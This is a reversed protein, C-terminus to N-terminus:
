GPQATQELARGPCITALRTINRDQLVFRPKAVDGDGGFVRERGRLESPPREVDGIM